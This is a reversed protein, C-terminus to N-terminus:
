FFLNDTIPICYDMKEKEDVALLSASVRSSVQVIYMWIGAREKRDSGIKKGM